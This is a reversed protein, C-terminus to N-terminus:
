FLTELQDEAEQLAEGIRLRGSTVSEVMEKFIVDSTAPNPDPWAKSILASEYFVPSLDDPPPTNLLKRTVPPLGNLSSLTELIRNSTFISAVKLAGGKNQSANPIAFAQVRGFTARKGDRSQPLVAVDFNLNPNARALEAYESTYGFYFALQDALFLRQSESLARNWSYVSKIPNSFETYFRLASEAPRVTFGFNQMLQPKFKGLNDKLVIPNGAQLMLTALIDKAHSVNSYEGLSVTSQLINQSRDRKTIKPSLVFFEDWYQPPVAVGERSLIDRNWYMVLPDVIFPFAIIGTEDLYLESAELYTDKFQRESYSEYSLIFVKNKEALIHDQDLLFLDPGTGEAIATVLEVYYTRPDHEVYQVAEAANKIFDKSVKILEQMTEAKVTGWIVVRGSIENEPTKGSFLAFAIVGGVALVLFIGTIILQINSGKM